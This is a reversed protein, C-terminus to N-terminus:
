ASTNAARRRRTAAMGGLGAATLLAISGPEPVTVSVSDLDWFQPVDSFNFTLDTKASTATALFDFETYGFAFANSLATGAFSGFSASFAGPGSAGFADTELQLWFSVKYTSGAVTDLTQSIQSAFGFYAAYSGDHPRQKDVYWSGPTPTFSTSWGTFDGTEFGGNTVLDARAAASAFLAAALLSCALPKTMRSPM